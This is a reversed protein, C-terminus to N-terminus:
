KSEQNFDKIAQELELRTVAGTRKVVAVGQPSILISTPLGRLSGFPLKKGPEALLVPYNIFSQEVFEKLYDLDVQEQNLGLVVAYKDHHAQHFEILEPIEDLCPPCWTAWFNVVVWKGRYDSLKHQKGNIDTLTFDISQDKAAVQGTNFVLGIFALIAVHKLVSQYNLM